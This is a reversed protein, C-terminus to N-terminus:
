ALHRPDLADRLADGMLNAALVVLFIALGPFIMFHPANMMFPRGLNLMMGWEPTPPQAGLGLFSISALALAIRGIDLTTLVVIPSIINPVVHKRVIHSQKAGLCQAAIVYDSEKIVLAMSRIVRAYILWWVASLSVMVTMSSQGITGSIVIALILSPFASLMDVIRMLAADVWGGLFGSLSGVSVGLTMILLVAVGTTGLTVRAGFIIRSLMDRGLNDTGMLHEWSPSQLKKSLAVANPDYPAIQPALIAMLTFCVLVVLGSVGLRNRGFRRMADGWPTRVRLPQGKAGRLTMEAGALFGDLRGLNYV